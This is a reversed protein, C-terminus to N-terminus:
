KLKVKVLTMVKFDLYPWELNNHIAGNLADSVVDQQRQM